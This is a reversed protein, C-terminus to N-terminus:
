EVDKLKKVELKDNSSDELDLLLDAVLEFSREKDVWDVWLKEDVLEKVDYWVIAGPDVNVLKDDSNAEGDITVSKDEEMEDVCCGDDVKNAEDSAELTTELADEVEISPELWVEYKSSDVSLKLDDNENDLKNLLETSDFPWNELEEISNKFLLWVLEDEPELVTLECSDDLVLLLKPSDIANPVGEIVVGAEAESTWALEDDSFEISNLEDDYPILENIGEAVLVELPDDDCM